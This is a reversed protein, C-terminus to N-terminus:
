SCNNRIDIIPVPYTKNTQIRRQTKDRVEFATRSKPIRQGQPIRDNSLFSANGNRVRERVWSKVWLINRKSRYITSFINTVIIKYGQVTKTIKKNCQKIYLKERKKRDRVKIFIPITLFNM